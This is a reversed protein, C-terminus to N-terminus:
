EDEDSEDGRAGMQDKYRYDANYRSTVQHHSLNFRVQLFMESGHGVLEMKKRKPRGVPFKEDGQAVM